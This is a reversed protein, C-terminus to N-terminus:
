SKLLRGLLLGIGGAILASKLPNKKIYNAVTDTYQEVDKQLKAAAEHGQQIMEDSKDGAHESIKDIKHGAKRIKDGVASHPPTAKKAKARTM